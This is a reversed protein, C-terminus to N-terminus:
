WWKASEDCKHKVMGREKVIDPLTLVEKLNSPLPVKVYGQESIIYRETAAVQIADLIPVPYGCTKNLTHTLTRPTYNRYNEWFWRQFKPFQLVLYGDLLQDYERAFMYFLCDCKAYCMWGDSERGKVTCSRTECFFNRRPYGPWREMKEEISVSLDLRAQLLTDVADRKQVMMSYKSKEVLVYRGEVSWKGYTAPLFRNRMQKQWQDDRQFENEKGSPSASFKLHNERIPVIGQHHNSQSSYNAMM